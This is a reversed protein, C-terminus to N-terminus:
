VDFREKLKLYQTYQAQVQEDKVKKMKEQKRKRVKKEKEYEKENMDRYWVVYSEDEYEDYGYEIDINADDPYESLEEILLRVNKNFITLRHQEKMTMRAWKPLKKPMTM